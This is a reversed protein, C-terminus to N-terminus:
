AARFAVASHKSQSQTEPDSASQRKKQELTTRLVLLIALNRPNIALWAKHAGGWFRSLLLTFEPQLVWFTILRDELWPVVQELPERDGLRQELGFFLKRLIERGLPTTGAILAGTGPPVQPVAGSCRLTPILWQGRPKRLVPKIVLPYDSTSFM